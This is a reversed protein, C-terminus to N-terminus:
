KSPTHRECLGIRMMAGQQSHDVSELEKYMFPVSGFATLQDALIKLRERETANTALLELHPLGMVENPADTRQGHHLMLALNM